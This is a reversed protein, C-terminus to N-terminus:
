TPPRTSVTMMRMESKKRTSGVITSAIMRAGTIRSTTPASASSNPMRAVIITMTTTMPRVLQATVARIMRDWTREILIRINTSRARTTPEPGPRIMRRWTSGFTMLRITAWATSVNATATNVSVVSANM